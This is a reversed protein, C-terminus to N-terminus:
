EDNPEGTDFVIVPRMTCGCNPLQGPFGRENTRDDIIPPDDMPFIQGSLEVHLERPRQGGGSHVWEFHKVGVAQMRGKNLAGYAKRTQDEAITKARRETIGEFRELAPILDALGNGSTISRAVSGQVDIFYREPISKIYSVNETISAKLIDAVPGAKLTRTGLSLGGSLEKLSSHLATSSAREVQSIMRDAMATARRSFFQEWKRQLANALIRSASAISADMASGTIAVSGEAVEGAFLGRLEKKVDRSMARVLRELEARYRQEVAVPERLVSGRMQQPKFREAWASKARSLNLKRAM